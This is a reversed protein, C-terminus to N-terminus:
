ADCVTSAVSTRNVVLRGSGHGAAVDEIIRATRDAWRSWNLVSRARALAAFSMARYRREDALLDNIARAYREPGASVPLVLGTVGHEVVTPLGGADSVISPRAFHAAECPAIGFAEGLSPLLMLHSGALARAHAARDGADSLRLRGLSNVTASRSAIPSPVGIHALQADWGMGCLMETARVALRLQKRVPDSAVICLRIRRDRIPLPEALAGPGPTVHAGMEVLHARAPDLGYDEVASRLAARSAFVAAAAKRMVTRELEDCAERYGRGRRVANPYTDNIIRATADSFYVVPTATRLGVLATSICCGFLVDTPHAEIERQLRASRAHAGDLMTRRVRDPRLDAWWARTRKVGARARAVAPRALARVPEPIIRRDASAPPETTGFTVIGGFRRALEERMRFPMGSITDPTLRWSPSIFGLRLGGARSRDVVARGGGGPHEGIESRM